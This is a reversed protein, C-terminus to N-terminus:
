AAEPHAYATIWCDPPELRYSVCSVDCNPLGSRITAALASIARWIPGSACVPTIYTWGRIERRDLKQPTRLLVLEGTPAVFAREVFPPEGKARAKEWAKECARRVTICALDLASM